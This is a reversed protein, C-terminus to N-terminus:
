LCLFHERYFGRLAHRRCGAAPQRVCERPLRCKRDSRVPDDLMRTFEGVECAYSINETSAVFHMAGAARLRSGLASVRCGVNGILDSPITSCEQLNELRVPM